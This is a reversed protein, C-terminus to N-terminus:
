SAITIVDKEVQPYLEDIERQIEITKALATVVRCYHKIDEISLLRTKRDKLWKDLVQYGGIQYQWIEPEVGEFYQNNNLYVRKEKSNYSQKEVRNNGKGQFRCIPKNLTPSELLHLDVLVKGLSALKKFLERDKTFPVRPFDRKLPEGYTTRYAPAYLVAYVYHFVNDPEAGHGYVERLVTLLSHALNPKKQQKADRALLDTPCLYLPFVYDITKLSVAVHEVPLNTALVHQWGGVFEVRRPTVLAL